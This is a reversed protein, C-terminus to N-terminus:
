RQSAFDPLIVDTSGDLKKYTVKLSVSLTHKMSEDSVTENPYYPATDYASESYTIKRSLLLGTKEDVVYEGSFGNTELTETRMKKMGAYYFVEADVLPLLKDGLSAASSTFYYINGGSGNNRKSVTDLERTVVADSCLFQKIFVSEDIETFTSI